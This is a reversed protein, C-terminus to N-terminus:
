ISYCLKQWEGWCLQPSLEPTIGQVVISVNDGNQTVYAVGTEDSDATCGANGPNVRNGSTSYDWTGTTDYTASFGIRSCFIGVMVIVGVILLRKM